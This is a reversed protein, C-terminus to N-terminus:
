FCRFCDPFATLLPYGCTQSLLLDPSRWLAEVSVGRTPTEPAEDFGEEALARGLGACWSNTAAEVCPLDYMPLSLQM